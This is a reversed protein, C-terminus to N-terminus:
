DVVPQDHHLAIDLAKYLENLTMKRSTPPIKDLDFFGVQHIEHNPTLTGGIVSAQFYVVYESILAPSIRYLDRRLLALMRDIKVHLGTEQLVEKIAAETPSEFLDCWGGPVAYGGDSKEQGMLLQGQENFVIVRVSISPTPYIDKQYPIDIVSFGHEDKLQAQALDQLERYNELAYEDKSFKLGIRSIALVKAVFETYNMDATSRM